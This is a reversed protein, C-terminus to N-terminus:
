ANADSRTADTRIGLTGQSMFVNEILNSPPAMCPPIVCYFHAFLRRVCCFVCVIKNMVFEWFGEGNVIGKSKGLALVRCANIAVVFNCDGSSPAPDTTLELDGGEPGWAHIPRRDAGKPGTEDIWVCQIARFERRVFSLWGHRTEDSGYSSRHKIQLSSSSNFHILSAHLRLNNGEEVITPPQSPIGECYVSRFSCGNASLADWSPRPRYCNSKGCALHEAGM